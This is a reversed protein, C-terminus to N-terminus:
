KKKFVYKSLFYTEILVAELCTDIFKHMAISIM